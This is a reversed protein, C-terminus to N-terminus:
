SLPLPTGNDVTRPTDTIQAVGGPFLAASTNACGGDEHRQFNTTMSVPVINEGSTTLARPESWEVRVSPADCDAFVESWMVIESLEDTDAPAWLDRIVTTEGRDLDTISARWGRDPSPGIRYRYPVGPRWLYDRSNVNDLMSPLASASGELEGGGHRYGGWNVAGNGPHRPHHQLGMHAAGVTRGNAGFSAQLAWFYLSPVAPPDAVVLVVSVERLPPRM